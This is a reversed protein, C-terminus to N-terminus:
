LCWNRIFVSLVGATNRRNVTFFGRTFEDKFARVDPLDEEDMDAPKLEEEPQASPNENSMQCGGLVIIIAIFVLVLKLRM